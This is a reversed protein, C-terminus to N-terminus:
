DNSTSAIEHEGFIFDTKALPSGLFFNMDGAARPALKIFLAQKLKNLFNSIGICVFSM